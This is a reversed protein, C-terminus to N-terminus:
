AKPQENGEVKRIKVLRPVNSQHKAAATAEPSSLWTDLPGGESLLNERWADFHKRGGDSISFQNRSLSLGYTDVYGGADRDFRTDCWVATKITLINGPLPLTVEAVLRAIVGTKEGKKNTREVKIDRDPRSFIVASFPLSYKIPKAPKEGAKGKENQENLKADVAAAADIGATETVQEVTTNEM